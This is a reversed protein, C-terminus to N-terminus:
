RSPAAAIQAEAWRLVREAIRIAETHDEATVEEWFGPYRAEVAYPTLSTAEKVDAPVSVGAKEVLTLLEALAHTKPFAVGRWVLIAKLAKEAAQQADFCLDEFLVDSAKSLSRARALNSRARRLWAEPRSPDRDPSM